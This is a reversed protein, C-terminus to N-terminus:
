NSEASGPLRADIQSTMARLAALPDAAAAAPTPAPQEVVEVRQPTVPQPQEPERNPTTQEVVRGVPATAQLQEVVAPATAAALLEGSVEVLQDVAAAAFQGDTVGLAPAAARALEALGAAAAPSVAAAIDADTPIAAPTPAPRQAPVTEVAHPQGPAETAGDGTGLEPRVEPDVSSARVDRVHATAPDFKLVSFILWELSFDPLAPRGGHPKGDFILPEDRGPRVGGKALRAGLVMPPELRDLRVYVTSMYPFYKEAEPKFVKSAGPIPKGDDGVQTIEGGRATCVVVAHMTVLRTVIHRWPKKVSNWHLQGVHINAYPDRALEDRAEISGLARAEAIESLMGWLVSMSDVVVLHPKDGANHAAEAADAIQDVASAIQYVSGDHNVIDYDPILAAYQDPDEGISLWWVKGWRGCAALEAAAYSKGSYEGGALLILPWAQGMLPKRTELTYAKRPPRQPRAARPRHPQPQEGSTPPETTEAGAWPDYEGGPAIQRVDTVTM